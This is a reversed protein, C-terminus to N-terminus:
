APTKLHNTLQETLRDPENVHIAQILDTEPPHLALQDAARGTGDIVLVTRGAQLNNPVDLDRSIEGGNILVAISPQDGALHTAINSIWISEDGWKRGPVVVFHSHNSDLRYVRKNMSLKKLPGIKREPWRTTGEATVGILPFDYGNEAKIQGITAMVGSETGGDIIAARSAAAVTAITTLALRIPAKDEERVGGAGGIIVIVPQRRELALEQLAQHIQNPSNIEVKLAQRNDFRIHELLM